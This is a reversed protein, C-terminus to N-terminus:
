PYSGESAVLGRPRISGCAPAQAPLLLMGTRGLSEGLSGYNIGAAELTLLHVVEVEIGQGELQRAAKLAEERFARILFLTQATCRLRAAPERALDSEEIVLRHSGWARLKQGARL